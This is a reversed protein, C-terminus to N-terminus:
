GLPTQLPITRAMRRGGFHTVLTVAVPDSITAAYANSVVPVRSRRGDSATVTVSSVGNPAVGVVRFRSGSATSSTSQTAVLEGSRASELSGCLLETSPPLPKGGPGSVLARVLRVFCVEGNAAPVLWAPTASPVHRAAELDTADFTPGASNALTARITAPLQDVVQRAARLVAFYEAYDSARITARAGRRAHDTPWSLVATAGLVLSLSLVVGRAIRPRHPNSNTM